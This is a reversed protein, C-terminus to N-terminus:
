IKEEVVKQGSAALHINVNLGVLDWDRQFVGTEFLPLM